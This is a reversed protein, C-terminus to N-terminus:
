LSEGSLLGVVASVTLLFELAQPAASAALTSHPLKQRAFRREPHGLRNGPKLVHMASQRLWFSNTSSTKGPQESAFVATLVQKAATGGPLWFQVQM